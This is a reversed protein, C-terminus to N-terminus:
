LYRSKIAVELLKMSYHACLTSTRKILKGITTQTGTGKKLRQERKKCKESGGYKSAEM